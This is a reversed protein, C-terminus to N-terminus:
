ILMDIMFQFVKDDPLEAARLIQGDAEAATIQGEESEEGYIWLSVNGCRDPPLYSTVGVLIIECSFYWAMRAIFADLDNSDSKDTENGLLIGPLATEDWPRNGSLNAAARADYDERHLGDMLVGLLRALRKATFGSLLVVPIEVPPYPRPESGQSPAQNGANEILLRLIEDRDADANVKLCSLVKATVLPAAYSNSVATETQQGQLSLNHESSAQFHIRSFPDYCYIYEDDTLEPHYKVGIVGPLYAPYTVTGRNGSAAVLIRDACLLRKVAEELKAFDEYAYTGVSLHILRIDMSICLEFAKLLRGVNGRLTDGQLIQISYVDVNALETYLQVIRACTSGHSDPLVANDPLVSVSMDDEIRFSGALPCAGPHIGDDLIAMRISRDSM